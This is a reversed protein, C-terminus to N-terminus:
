LSTAPDTHSLLFNSHSALLSCVWPGGAPVPLVWRQQMRPPRHCRTPSCCGPWRAGRGGDTQAAGPRLACADQLAIVLGGTGGKGGYTVCSSHRGPVPTWSGWTIACSSGGGFAMPHVQVVSLGLFTTEAGNGRSTEENLMQM